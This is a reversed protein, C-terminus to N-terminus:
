DRNHMRIRTPMASKLGDDTAMWLKPRLAISLAPIISEICENTAILAIPFDFLNKIEVVHQKEIPSM